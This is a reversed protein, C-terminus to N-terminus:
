SLVTVSSILFVLLRWPARPDDAGADAVSGTHRVQVVGVTKIARQIM